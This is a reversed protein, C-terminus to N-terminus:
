NDNTRTMYGWNAIALSTELDASVGVQDGIRIMEDSHQSILKIWMDLYEKAALTDSKSRNCTPCALVFNHM